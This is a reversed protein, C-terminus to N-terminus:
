EGFRDVFHPVGAKALRALVARLTVPPNRKEAALRIVTTRVERPWEELLACLYTDPDVVRLGHRVLDRAPFDDLNWTILTRAGGAIAAAAHHRDDPDSGPMVDVLHAYELEDVACDAFFERIAGTIAAASAASRQQERVIVREWESLLRESWVLEHVADETLALMLDMVSFPFLVNTDVFVRM